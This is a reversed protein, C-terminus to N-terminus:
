VKFIPSKGRGDISGNSPTTRHSLEEREEESDHSDDDDDEVDSHAPTSSRSMSPSPPMSAPKPVKSISTPQEEMEDTFLEPHGRALAMIRAKRYYVGLYKWDLLESLRETRNRQIIRQRRSLCTFDFMDRALERVSDESSQNRRDVIYIGYSMPENIHEKMFCGFGSLNTTISPIGMVTCEAPTYGWPEYYSPFVGLHCGRVFEEYDLGFLPNTSNLFEPHFIVKVRDARNNFLECRRIANLVPDNHDDIVNHTCVPPLANTQSSFICRKLKVIDEKVLLDEGKPIEGRLCIEFLKHGIGKQVNEVTERLQKSIAQGRLSEVNFNNTRTPFILFAVVTQDSGAEKMYYNLRALGEIFM